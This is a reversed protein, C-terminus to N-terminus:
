KFFIFENKFAFKFKYVKFKFAVLLEHFKYSKRHQFTFM